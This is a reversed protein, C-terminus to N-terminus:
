CFGYHELAQDYFLKDAGNAWAHRPKFRVRAGRKTQWNEVSILEAVRASCNKPSYTETKLKWLM